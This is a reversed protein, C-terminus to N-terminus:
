KKLLHSYSFEPNKSTWGTLFGGGSLLDTVYGTHRIGQSM